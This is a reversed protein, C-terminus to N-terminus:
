KAMLRRGVALAVRKPAFRNPAFAVRVVAGPVISRKGKEAARLSEEAVQEASVFVVGPMKEAFVADSAEQFGTRVPGPLVATVTVGRGRTEEWLAESWLLTHSKAAAYTGNGPIPQLASTSSLNIVAGRGREVMGPLYRATLDVPAEVLVRVQELERERDSAAFERYVGFGANNVLVEVTLGLREVEDALADRAAADALDCAVVEARVGHDRRLEEALAELRERRRAVLLVHGGQDRAVSRALEEGLGSSAGTILTWRARLELTRNM